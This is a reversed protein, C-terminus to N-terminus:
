VPRREEARPQRDHARGAQPGRRARHRRPRRGPEPPLVLEAGGDVTGLRGSPHRRGRPRDRDPLVGPEARRRQRGAHRGPGPRFRRRHHDRRGWLGPQGGLVLGARRDVADLRHRRRRRGPWPRDPVPRREAPSPQRGHPRDPPAPGPRRAADGCRRRGPERPLVLGAGPDLTDLRRHCHRRPGPRPRGPVAGPEQRRPRGGDGGGPGSRRHEGPRRPRHRGGPEPPLVLGASPDVADLRRHRRRGWGPGARGPVPGSEEGRSQGGHPRRPGPRRRRGSEGRRGWRGREGLLVLRARRHVPQAGSGSRGV